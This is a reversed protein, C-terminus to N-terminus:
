AFRAARAHLHPSIGGLPALGPLFFAAQPLRGSPSPYLVGFVPSDEIFKQKYFSEHPYVSPPHVQKMGRRLPVNTDSLPDETELVNSADYASNGHLVM